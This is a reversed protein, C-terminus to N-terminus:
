QSVKYNNGALTVSTGTLHRLPKSRNGLLTCPPLISKCFTLLSLDLLSAVRSASQLVVALGRTVIPNYEKMETAGGRSM